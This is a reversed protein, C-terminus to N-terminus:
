ANGFRATHTAAQGMDRFVTVQVFRVEKTPSSDIAINSSQTNHSVNPGYTFDSTGDAYTFRVGIGGSTGTTSSTWNLSGRVHAVIRGATNCGYSADGFFVASNTGQMSMEDDDLQQCTGVSQPSDGVFVTSTRSSPPPSAYCFNGTPDLWEGPGCNDTDSDPEYHVTVRVVSKGLASTLSVSKQTGSTHVSLTQRTNDHFLATAQLSGYGTFSGTVTSRTNTGDDWSEMSGTFVPTGGNFERLAIGDNDVVFHDAASAPLAGILTAPVALAIALALVRLIRSFTM